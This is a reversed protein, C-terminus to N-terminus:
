TGTAVPHVVVGAAAVMQGSPRCECHDKAVGTSPSPRPPLVIIPPVTLSKMMAVCAIVVGTAAVVGSRRSSKTAVEDM